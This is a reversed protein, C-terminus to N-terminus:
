NIPNPSFCVIFILIALWGLLQRTFNLPKSEGTDPHYVGLVRGILFGFALFGSYGVTQPSYKTILFQLLVVSLALIWNSAKSKFIRSFSLYNFYVFFLFKLILEYQQDTYAASFENLSFLGLGSYAVLVVLFVPSVIDFAKKGILSFMIHGGDLQGIPLLNLATFLLGLFGALLIPYHSLEYIHPIRSPDAFTSELFNYLISKGFVIANPNNPTLNLLDRYNGNFNKYEPHIAYVFDDSPLNSFGYILVGVAVVFGALPGAIGIDFYDNRNTIREKIKIFAGFTGLSTLIGLWGPIYYPLTVEINRIKAMFFHGFEHFTLFALFPVSFWFGQLLDDLSITKYFALVPKGSIWEYGSVTTTIVTVLFLILHLRPGRFIKKM